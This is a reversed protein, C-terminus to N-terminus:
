WSLAPMYRWIAAASLLDAGYCYVALRDQRWRTSLAGRLVTTLAICAALVCPEVVLNEVGKPVSTKWLTLVLWIAFPVVVVTFEWPEWEIRGRLLYSVGAIVAVTLVAQFAWGMAASLMQQM